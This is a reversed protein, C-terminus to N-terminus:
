GSPSIVTEPLSPQSVTRSPTAPTATSAGGLPRPFQRHDGALTLPVDIFLMVVMIGALLAVNPLLVAFLQVMDQVRDIDNM